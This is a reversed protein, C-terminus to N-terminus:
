GSRAKLQREHRGDPWCCSTVLPRRRGGARAHVRAAPAPLATKEHMNRNDKKRLYRGHCGACAGRWPRCASPMACSASTLPPWGQLGSGRGRLLSSPARAARRQLAEARLARASPFVSPAESGACRASSGGSAQRAGGGAGSHQLYSSPRWGAMVLSDDLTHTRRTRTRPPLELNRASRRSWPLKEQPESTRAQRLLPRPHPPPPCPPLSPARGGSPRDRCAPRAQSLNWRGHLLIPPCTM